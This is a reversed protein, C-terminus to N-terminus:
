GYDSRMRNPVDPLNPVCSPACVIMAALQECEGKVLNHVNQSMHTNALIRSPYPPRYTESNGFPTTPDSELTEDDRKQKKNIPGNM